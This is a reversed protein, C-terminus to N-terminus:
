RKACRCGGKRLKVEKIKKEGVKEKAKRRQSMGAKLKEMSEFM